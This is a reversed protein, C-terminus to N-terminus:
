TNSNLTKEAKFYTITERLAFSESKVDYQCIKWSYRGPIAVKRSATGQTCMIGVSPTEEVLEEQCNIAFAGKCRYVQSPTSGM